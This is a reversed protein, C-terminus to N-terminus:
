SKRTGPFSETNAVSYGLKSSVIDPNGSWLDLMRFRLRLAMSRANRPCRSM